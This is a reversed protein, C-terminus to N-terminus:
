TMGIIYMSTFATLLCRMMMTATSTHFSAATYAKGTAVDVTHPGALPSRVFSLLHGDRGVVATSVHYGCRSCDDFAALALRNALQASLSRMTATTTADEAHGTSSMVRTMGILSTQFIKRIGM